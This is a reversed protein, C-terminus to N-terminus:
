AAIPRSRGGSIGTLSQAHRTPFPDRSLRPAREDMQRARRFGFGEVVGPLAIDVLPAAGLVDALQGAAEVVRQVALEEADLPFAQLLDGGITAGEEDGVM